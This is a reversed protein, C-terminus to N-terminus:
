HKKESRQKTFGIEQIIEKAFLLLGLEVIRVFVVKLYEKRIAKQNQHIVIKQISIEAVSGVAFGEQNTHVYNYQGRFAIQTKPKM